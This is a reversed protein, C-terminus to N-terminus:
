RSPRGKLDAEPLDVVIMGSVRAPAFQNGAMEDANLTRPTARM